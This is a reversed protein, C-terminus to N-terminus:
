CLRVESLEQSGLWCGAPGELAALGRKVYGVQPRAGGVGHPKKRRCGRHGRLVRRLVAASLDQPGEWRVGRARQGPRLKVHAGAVVPIMFM